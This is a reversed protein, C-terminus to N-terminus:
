INSIDYIDLGDVLLLIRFLTLKEVSKLLNLNLTKAVRLHNKMCSNFLWTKEVIWGDSLKTQNPKTDKNLPM